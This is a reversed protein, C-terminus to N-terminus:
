EPPYGYRKVWPDLIPFIPALQERYRRWQAVAGGYLPKSVQTASPSRLDVSPANKNFDRMSETWEVGIFDCVARVRGEFDEVMDEYRHELLDLNFKERYIESLEMISAYFRAADDLALFEFMTENVRFHRRFCSFVVDRPDRLAFLIKAKPFLKTILPLKVTNLPQKDVFIKGSVDAGHSRVRDWYTQRTRALESGELAALADLGENSTMYLQGLGNLTGKEELAVIRPNSALVQELLTTGSRMFGLLFVHQAPAGAFSGGDDKSKWNEVPADRFYAMLHHPTDAARMETFRAAHPRRLEENEQVYAAFAEAYKKQGELADGLLGMAGARAQVHLRGGDILARLRQEADAFRKEGIELIALAYRATPEDARLALARAAFARADDAEGKRAAISAMSALAEPYDPMLAIARQYSKFAADHDGRMALALGRRYHTHPRNPDIALAADFSELAEAFKELGMQSLGIANFLSPDRPSFMAAQQFDDLAEKHRGAAQLALGRANFVVRHRIGRQIAANALRYAQNLNSATVAASIDALIRAEMENMGIGIAM